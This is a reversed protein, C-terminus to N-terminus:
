IHSGHKGRKYQWHNIVFAGAIWFFILLGAYESAKSPARGISDGKAIHSEICLDDACDFSNYFSCDYVFMADPDNACAYFPNICGGSYTCSFYAHTGLDFGSSGWAALFTLTSLIIAIRFYTKNFYGAKQLDSFNM